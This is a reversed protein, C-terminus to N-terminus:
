FVLRVDLGGTSSGVVPTVQVKASPPPQEQKPKDSALLYAGTGLSVASLGLFVWQLTQFTKASSCMDAVEGNRALPPVQGEAAECVDIGKPVNQRYDSFTADNNTSNVKLASYLSGAALAGGAVLAGYGGIKRFNLPKGAAARAQEETLPELTLAVSSGPRVTVQGSAPAYGPARVEVKHEGSPVFVTTMGNQVTGTLEGDVFVQGNVDGVTIKVIGKPPGGTLAHLAERAIARLSEDNPETLNDSFELPHNTHGQGRTWMHLTGKVRHNDASDLTGWIYRESRIEDGIKLQCAADPPSPCRLAITLVELSYDGQALSWGDLKRVEAKLATTLADAQEDADETKITIVHIPLANPGPQDAHAPLTSALVALGMSVSLVAAFQGRM